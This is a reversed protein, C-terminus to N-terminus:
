KKIKLINFFYYLFITKKLFFSFFTKIKIKIIKNNKNKLYKIQNELFYYFFFIEFNQHSNECLAFNESHHSNECQAFKRLLCCGWKTEDM